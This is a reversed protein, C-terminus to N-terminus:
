FPRTPASFLEGNQFSTIDQIAKSHRLAALTVTNNRTNPINNPRQASRETLLKKVFIIRSVGLAADYTFGGRLTDDGHKAEFFRAAEYMDNSADVVTREWAGREAPPGIFFAGIRDKLDTFVRLSIFLHAHRKNKAHGFM